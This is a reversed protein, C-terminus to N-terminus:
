FSFLLKIVLSSIIAVIASYRAIKNSNLLNKEELNSISIKVDNELRQIYNSWIEQTDKINQIIIGNGVIKSNMESQKGTYDNLSELVQKIFNIQMGQNEKYSNFIAILEVVKLSLQHYDEKVKPIQENIFEKIKEIEIENQKCLDIKM